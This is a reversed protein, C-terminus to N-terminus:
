TSKGDSAHAAAVSAANNTVIGAGGAKKVIGPEPSIKGEEVLKAVERSRAKFNAVGYGLYVAGVDRIFLFCHAL